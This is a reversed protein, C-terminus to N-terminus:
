FQDFLQERSAAIYNGKIKYRVNYLMESLGSPVCGDDIMFCTTASIVRRKANANMWTPFACPGGGSGGQV